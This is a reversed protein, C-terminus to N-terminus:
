HKLKINIVGNAGGEGYLRRATEGKLVEISQITAPDIGDLAKTSLVGDIYVLPKNAGNLAISQQGRVRVRTGLTDGGQGGSALVVAEPLPNAVAVGQTVHTSDGKTTINIQGAQRGKGSRVVSVSAIKEPTLALAEAQSVAKGNVTYSADASPKFKAQVAAVDMASVQEATPLESQCAAVLAVAVVSCSAVRRVLRYRSPLSTMAVLRQELHSTGFAFAPMIPSLLARQASLQLLLEGYAPKRAGSKIVRNDCDLEIALRLRSWMFWLAANWPMLAVAVCGALLLLPDRARVHEREHAIVLEQETGSRSLVWQPIVIEPPAIGMVAPGADPSVRVHEGFLQAVPWLKRRHAYRAYVAALTLLACCSVLIWAMVAVWQGSAATRAIFKSAVEVPTALAHVIRQAIAVCSALLSQHTAVSSTATVADYPLSVSVGAVTRRLPAVVALVITLAIACGWVFRAPYRSARLLVEAAIGALAVLAGVMMAYAMWALMM